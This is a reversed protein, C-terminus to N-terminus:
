ATLRVLTIKAGLPGPQFADVQFRRGLDDYIVDREMILPLTVNASQPLTALWKIPGPSDAPLYTGGAKGASAIELNASVNMAITTEASEAVGQYAVAGFAAVAIPRKFTLTRPYLFGQAV